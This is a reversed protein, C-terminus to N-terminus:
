RWTSRSVQHPLGTRTEPHAHELDRLQRRPNPNGTERAWQRACCVDWASAPKPDHELCRKSGQRCLRRGPMKSWTGQKVPTGRQERTPSVCSGQHWTAGKHCVLNSVATLNSLVAYIPACRRLSSAPSCPARRWRWARRWRRGACREWCWRGLVAVRM